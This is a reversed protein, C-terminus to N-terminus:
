RASGSATPMASSRTPSTTAGPTPSTSGPTLLVPQSPGAMLAAPVPPCEPVPLPATGCASLGSLSALVLLPVLLHLPMVRLMQWLSALLTALAKALRQLPLQVPRRFLCLVLAATLLPAMLALALGYSPSPHAM